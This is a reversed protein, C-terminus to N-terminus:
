RARWRVADAREAQVDGRGALIDLDALCESITFLTVRRRDGTDLLALDFATAPRTRLRDIIRSRRREAHATQHDIVAAHDAFSDGHGPLIVDLDLHRTLALSELYSPGAPFATPRDADAPLCRHLIPTAPPTLVLHDGVLATGDAEDVFVADTPSHGPRHLVLFRRDGADLVDGDSFAVDVEASDAYPLERRSREDLLDVTADPVGNAVMVTRRLADEARMSDHMNALYDVVLAHALLRAGSLEKIAFALGLHDVHQHTVVIQEIDELRLAREALAV